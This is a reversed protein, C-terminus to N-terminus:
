MMNTNDLGVIEFSACQTTVSTVPFGPLYEVYFAFFIDHCCGVLINRCSSVSGAVIRYM